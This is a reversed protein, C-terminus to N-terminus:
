VGEVEGDQGAAAPVVVAGGVQGFFEHGQEYAIQHFPLFDGEVAVAEIDPVPEVDFVVAVRDPGDEVLALEAFGVVDAAVVLDGVADDGFGEDALHALAPVVAHGVDFVAGAV